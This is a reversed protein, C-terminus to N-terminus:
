ICRRAVAECSNRIILQPVIRMEKPYNRKENTLIEVAKEGMREFDVAVTSFGYDLSLQPVIHDYGAVEIKKDLGLERLYEIVGTAMIDNICFIATVKKGGQLLKGLLERGVDRLDAEKKLEMSLYLAPDVRVGHDELCERYGRVRRRYNEVVQKVSFVAIKRHGKRILYETMQYAGAYDDNFIGYINPPTDEFGELYYNLHIFKIHPFEEALRIGEELEEWHFMIVGKIEIGDNGAYFSISKEPKQTIFFTDMGNKHTKKLIGRYISAQVLDNEFSTFGLAHYIGCVPKKETLRLIEGVFTGKKPRRFCIGAKILENLAREATKVSVGGLSAITRIDPLKTGEKLGNKIIYAKIQEAIQKYIPLPHEEAVNLKM